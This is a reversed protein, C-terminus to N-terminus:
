AVARCCSCAVAACRVCCSTLSAPARYVCVWGPRGCHPLLQTINGRCNLACRTVIEHMFQRVQSAPGSWRNAHAPTRAWRRWPLVALVSPFTTHIGINLVYNHGVLACAFEFEPSTGIFLTSVEKDEGDSGFNITVVRMHDDNADDIQGRRGVVGQAPPLSNYLASRTKYLTKSGVKYDVLGQSEFMALTLWNHFGVLKGRHSEGVFVHEFGSSDAVEQRRYNSFWIRHLLRKFETEDPPAAGCAKLQTHIFIKIVTVGITCLMCACTLLLLLLLDYRIM